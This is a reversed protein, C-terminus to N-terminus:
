HCRLELDKPFGFVLEDKSYFEKIQVQWITRGADKTLAKINGDASAAFVRAGFTKPKLSIARDGIGSGIKRNWIVNLRVEEDIFPLPNPKVEEPKDDGGFWSCGSSLLLFLGCLILSIQRFQMM